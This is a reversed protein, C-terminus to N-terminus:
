QTFSFMGDVYWSNEVQSRVAEYSKKGSQRAKELDLSDFSGYITGQYSNIDDSPSGSTKSKVGAWGYGGALGVRWHNDLVKDAGITTGFTNASFGAIGKRTDQKLHSGLAQMWVGVGNLMDGSSVGSGSAGGSREGGLRNSVTTFGQGTLARSGEAAGSSVDPIMTNLASDVQPGSLGDLTNLVNLMDGTPNTIDDLVTGVAVANPNGKADSAFGNAARNTTLILDDGITTANFVAHTYNPTTIEPAAISGGSAGDIITYVAGSPIFNEVDLILADTAVLACTGTTSLTGSSTGRVAVKLKAGAAQTYNGSGINLKITGIDITANNQVNGAGTGLASSNSVQLTGGTVTTGGTYSNAGSLTLTGAGFKTLGTASTNDAIVSSLTLGASANNQLIVLDKGAAGRLTGGTITSLNNGVASTVLIGGTTLIKGTETTITDAAMQNFRLSTISTDGALAVDTVVDANGSLATTTSNTYGSLTSLGVIWANTSDKAAWDNGGVTAYAVGSGTLITSATGTGTTIGNTASLTGTPQTFNVTSGVNRTIAGLNLVLPNVTGNATLTIASSGRNLTLGNVTQSNTTSAKGMLLLTGGGIALASSGAIINAAPAGTALFDLSLTGTNVTTTGTYTNTGSLVQTGLGSKTLTMAAAGNAIVGSYTDTVDTGPNLTLATVSGYGTTIVSALATSGKLGGFTPTAFSTVNVFGAGSTDLASNQLALNNGLILTGATVKTDGSYTNVGSLTLTSAGLKNLGLLNQGINALVVDYTRAAATDFGLAGGSAFNTTALMTAINADTVANYVALTAGSAVSYKGLTDWGPLSGTGTMSLVGASITTGGSYTNAGSLTLIGTGEQKLVGAGSIANSATLSNTRKFTLTADNIVAGTGLTGITGADGVQLISAGSITTTGTYTNAGTLIQTVGTGTGAVALGGTGSIVGGYNGSTSTGNTITLTGSGLAVTSNLVGDLPGITVNLDNLNLGGGDKNSLIVNSKNGFVTTAAGAKLTGASVTTTGTYLNAGSLLLTGAGAKTLGGTKVPAAGSMTLTTGATDVQITAITSDSITFNRNTSATVGTYQLVGGNFMINGADSSAKGLNWAEGGNGITAVSIKGDILTTVGTYTNAGSLTLTNAGIKVLGLVGSSTNGIVNAYTRNAASTDFGLSAGAEFNSTGLLTVISADVVGNGVALGSGNGVSYKGNTNWGPLSATDTMSIIGSSITTGGSYTNAGSLTLTGVGQKVLSTAGTGDQIVGAFTTANADGATLIGAAGTNTVIGGAAGALSGITTNFGGLDLTGAAGVTVASNKGLAGSVDAVSNIGAKLTGASVTTAGTYTNAGGLLLTGVGTKTLAGTTAASAGYIGLTKGAASIDFTATKGATITFARNTSEGGGTYQLTGGNFVLNAAATTAGGLQSIAVVSISGANLTTVGTYTNVGTLTLTNAGIKVLGLGVNVTDAISSAYTRDGLSTDFGISAGSAFNTTNLITLPMGAAGIDLEGVGNGVALTAGSNVSYKGNINWGTLSTTSAMSVIGSSITTTGTYTTIGSLALTGTGSKTLGRSFTSGSLDTGDTLLSAAPASDNNAKGFLFSTAEPFYTTLDYVAWAGRGLLNVLLVDDTTDYSIGYVPANALSGGFSSWTPTASDASTDATYRTVYIGSGDKINSVGGVFLANVGNASAFTLGRRDVFTDPLKGAEVGNITSFNGGTDTSRWVSAGDAVYFRSGDREDFIAKFVSKGGANTYASLQTMSVTGADSTYYLYGTDTTKWINGSGALLANNGSVNTGYALSTIPNNTPLVGTGPLISTVLFPWYEGPNPKQTLDDTGIFLHYNGGLAMKTPDTRNLAVVSLFPMYGADEGAIYVRSGANNLIYPQLTTRTKKAAVADDATGVEFRSFGGLSQSSTYVVSIGSDKKTVANVPNPGGDGGSTSSWDYSGSQGPFQYYAGVDQAGASVTHTIPNWSSQTMETIRLNNMIPFWDYQKTTSPDLYANLGGDGGFLLRGNKDIFFTRADAHPASNSLTNDNTIYTWTTSKDGPNYVGRFIPLTWQDAGISSNTITAQRDGAAYVVNPNSPDALVAGHVEPQNGPFLGTFNPTSPKGMNIWAGGQNATRWIELKETGQQVQAVLVGENGVSLLIRGDAKATENSKLGPVVMIQTWTAGTDISRYIGTESDNGNVVSLYFRTPDTPDGALNQINGVPLGTVANSFTAGTDISRYLGVTTIPTDMNRVAAMMIAGNAAVGTIDKGYIDAATGKKEVWSAGGDTSYQIGTLPGNAFGFASQRGTGAIIINSNTSDFNMAGISLSSLRDTLPNWNVRNDTTKWVGGNVAGAYIINTNGPDVLVKTIAGTTPNNTSAMGEVNVSENVANARIQGPGLDKWVPVSTDVASAPTVPSFVLALIAVISLIKKM